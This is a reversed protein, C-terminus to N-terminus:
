QFAVLVAAFDDLHEAFDAGTRVREALVTRGLRGAFFQNAGADIVVAEDFRGDAVEIARAGPWSDLFGDVRERYLAGALPELAVRDLVAYLSAEFNWRFQDVEWHDTLLGRLESYKAQDMELSAAEPALVEMPVYPLPEPANSLDTQTRGLPVSVLYAALLAIAGWSLIERRLTRRVARGPDGRELPVGAALRRRLKAVGRVHRILDLLLRVACWLAFLWVAWMGVLFLEVPRGGESWLDDFQLFLWLAILAACLLTRRVTRRLLKNWAWSQSTPDTYLEPAAPDCCCYIDYDGVAGAKRWGMHACLAEAEEQEQWSRQGRPDLRVRCRRPESREFLPFTGWSVLTWGQAAKEELWVEITGADWLDGPAPFRRRNRERKM